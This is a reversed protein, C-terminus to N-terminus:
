SFARTSTSTFMFLTIDPSDVGRSALPPSTMKSKSSSSLFFISLSLLLGILPIKFHEDVAVSTCLFSSDDDGTFVDVDDGGGSADGTPGAFPISLRAFELPHLTLNQEPKPSPLTFPISPIAKPPNYMLSEKRSSTKHSVQSTCLLISQIKHRSLVGRNVYLAFFPSAIGLDLSNAQGELSVAGRKREREEMCCASEDVFPAWAAPTEGGSFPPEPPWWPFFTLSTTASFATTTKALSLQQMHWTTLSRSWPCPTLGTIRRTLSPSSASTLLSSDSNRRRLPPPPAAAGGCNGATNTPPSSNPPTSWIMPAWM